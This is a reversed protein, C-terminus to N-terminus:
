WPDPPPFQGVPRRPRARKRGSRRHQLPPILGHAYPDLQERWADPAHRGPERVARRAERASWGEGILWAIREEEDQRRNLESWAARAEDRTPHRGRPRM